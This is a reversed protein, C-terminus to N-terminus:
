RRVWLVKGDPTRLTLNADDQVHLTVGTGQTGTDWLPKNSASVV